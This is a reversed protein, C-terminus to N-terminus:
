ILLLSNLLTQCVPINCVLQGTKILLLYNPCIKEAFLIHSVIQNFFIHELNCLAATKM